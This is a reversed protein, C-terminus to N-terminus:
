EMLRTQLAPMEAMVETPPRLELRHHAQTYEVVVPVRMHRLARPLFQICIEELEEMRQLERVELLHPQAQVLEAAAAALRSMAASHQIMVMKVMQLHAWVVAAAKELLLRLQGPCLALMLILMVIVAAAAAKLLVRLHETVM